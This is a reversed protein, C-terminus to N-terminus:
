RYMAKLGGWTSAGSATVSGSPGVINNADMTVAGGAALARGNLSAGTDLSISTYALINGAMVSSGGLTASSGVQWWVHSAQAGNTLEVSAGGAVTLASAIQFVFVAASDGQADLTLVGTMGAAAAFCYVGPTLTQAGLDVGSMPTTCPMAALAGYAIGLDAQAQAAVDDGAHISGGIPQGAPLGTIATGPSVGVDGTITTTASTNTVTTGALVAFTTASGLPVQAFGMAPAGLLLTLAAGAMITPLRRDLTM